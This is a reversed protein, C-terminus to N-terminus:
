ETAATVRHLRGLRKVQWKGSFGPLRKKGTLLEQM